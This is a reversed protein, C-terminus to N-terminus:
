GGKAERTFDPTFCVAAALAEPSPPSLRLTQVQDAKLGDLGFRAYRQEWATLEEAGVAYVALLDSREVFLERAALVV